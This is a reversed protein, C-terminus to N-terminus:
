LIRPTANLWDDTTIAVNNLWAFAGVLTVAVMPRVLVDDVISGVVYVTNTRLAM